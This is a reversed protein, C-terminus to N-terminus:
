QFDFLPNVFVPQSPIHNLQNLQFLEFKDLGPPETGSVNSISGQFDFASNNDGLLQSIPGLFDMDLLHALSFTRPFKMLRQQEGGDDSNIVPLQPCLNEEKEELVRGAHKKKYIRCLM